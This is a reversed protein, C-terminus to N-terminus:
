PRRTIFIYERSEHARAVPIAVRGNGLALEVLLGDAECALEVYLPVDETMDASWEEYRVAFGDSWTM